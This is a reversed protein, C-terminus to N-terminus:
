PRGERQAKRHEVAQRSVGMSTEPEAVLLKIQEGWEGQPAWESGM